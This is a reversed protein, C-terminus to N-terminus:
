DANAFLELLRCRTKDTCDDSIRQSQEWRELQQAELSQAGLSQLGLALINLAANVDRDLVLGCQPCQHVREALSKKVRHGCSSCDQSTHHPDVLVVRGGAGEAKYTTYRVLQSWAADAIAKALTHQKLMNRILLAEFVILGFSCVLKRSAQHAFERRRNAIREHIRAVVKRRKAREPTGKPVASLRRQAKALSREDTRFFRPNKIHTGTSLTAFHSLGVDVGVRTPLPECANPETEVSFCAFWKGTSTRRLTLTKITGVIERHLRIKIAGIKSVHLRGDKLAFGFQPYTFSDYRGKGKFRPYGPKEGAKIRRFFADFAKDLRTLVEQLVQSYVGEWEPSEAKLAPLEAHQTQRSLSIGCRKYATKRQELGANYLQRCLELTDELRRRQAKTPFIRFKFAKRM